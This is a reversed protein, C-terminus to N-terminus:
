SGSSYIPLYKRDVQICTEAFITNRFLYALTFAFDRICLFFIM